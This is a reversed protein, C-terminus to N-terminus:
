ETVSTSLSGAIVPPDQLGAAWQRSGLEAVEELHLRAPGSFHSAPIIM